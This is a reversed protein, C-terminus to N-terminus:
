VRGVLASAVNGPALPSLDVVKVLFVKVVVLSNHPIGRDVM